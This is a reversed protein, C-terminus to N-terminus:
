LKDEPTIWGKRVATDQIEAWQGRIREKAEYQSKCHSYGWGFGIFLAIAAVFIVVTM